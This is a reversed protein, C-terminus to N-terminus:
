VASLTVFLCFLVILIQYFFCINVAVILAHSFRLNIIENSTDAQQWCLQLRFCVFHDILTIAFFLCMGLLNFILIFIVGRDYNWAYGKLFLLSHEFHVCQVVNM